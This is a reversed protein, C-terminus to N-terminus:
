TSQHTSELARLAPHNSIFRRFRQNSIGTFATIDNCLARKSVLYAKQHEGKMGTGRMVVLVRTRMETSSQRAAKAKTPVPQLPMLAELDTEGRSKRIGPPNKCM